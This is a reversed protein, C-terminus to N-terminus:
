PHPTTDNSHFVDGIWIEDMVMRACLGDRQVVMHHWRDDGYPLGEDNSTSIGTGGAGKFM